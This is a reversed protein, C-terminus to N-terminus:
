GEALILNELVKSITKGGSCIADGNKAFLFWEGDQFEIRAGDLLKETLIGDLVPFDVERVTLKRLREIEIQKHLCASQWSEWLIKHMMEATYGTQLPYAIEFAARDNEETDSM